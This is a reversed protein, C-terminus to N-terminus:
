TRDDHCLRRKKEELDQLIAKLRDTATKDLSGDAAHSRGDIAHALRDIRRQLYTIYLPDNDLLVGGYQEAQTLPAQRGGTLRLVPYIFDKDEVLFEGTYRYGNLSLWLRLDEVKTM